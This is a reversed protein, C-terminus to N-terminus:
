SEFSTYKLLWKRFDHFKGCNSIMVNILCIANYLDNATEICNSYEMNLPENNYSFTLIYKDSEVKRSFKILTTNTCRDALTIEMNSKKIEIDKNADVSNSLSTLLVTVAVIGDVKTTTTSATAIADITIYEQPLEDPLYKDTDEKSIYYQRGDTDTIQYFEGLKKRKKPTTHPVYCFASYVGCNGITVKKNRKNVKIGFGGGNWRSVYELPGICDTNFIKWYKKNIMM